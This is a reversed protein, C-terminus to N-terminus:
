GGVEVLLAALACDDAHAEENCIPCCQGCGPIRKSFELERLMAALARRDERAQRADQALQTEARESPRLWRHWTGEYEVVREFEEDTLRRRKPTETM